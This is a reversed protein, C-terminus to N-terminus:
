TNFNGPVKAESLRKHIVLECLIGSDFQCCQADFHRECARFEMAEEVCIWLLMGALGPIEALLGLIRSYREADDSRKKERRRKPRVHARCCLPKVSRRGDGVGGLRLELERSRQKGGRAGRM